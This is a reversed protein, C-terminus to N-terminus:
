IVSISTLLALAILLALSTVSASFANEIPIVFNGPDLGKDFTLISIAFSILVILTVAIVNAVLLVALHNYLATPTFIGHILLALIGLIVFMVISALWASLVNKAHNIISSIKPKLMGLALKTTATSGVVSGVDSVLGILAPYVTLFEIRRGANAYHTIGRLFTGTLNVIFAVIMLSALSERITKIFETEHINKPFIYAVMLLHIAGILAIAVIGVTNYFFLNLAAVYCVTIFISATMSMIPYVMIDPDLGRKFSIFAVKVTVLLLFLGLGMTAVVVALISPFDAFTIGWFVEGFVVSIGSMAVSTALTLVVVAQLLNYFSKTNNAFRPYVTGLHLATSLRGSLLGEIIGKAGLVAPYLAITWPALRFVGLQYAVILGAVLGGIDFIYALFTEKFARLFGLDGAHTM